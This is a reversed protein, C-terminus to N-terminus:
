AKRLLRALAVLVIAGVTATVIAGLLGNASLGVLRFLFGGIFAGIVGIVIDALIGFGSGKLLKGAIWGAILGVLLFWFVYM